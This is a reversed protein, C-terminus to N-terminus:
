RRGGARNVCWAKYSEILLNLVREPTLSEHRYIYIFANGVSLIERVYTEKESAGAPLQVTDQKDALTIRLGDTGGGILLYSRM